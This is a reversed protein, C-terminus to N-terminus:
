FVISVGVIFVFLPFILDEFAIGEWPKHTLQNAIFKLPGSANFRDEGVINKIGEVIGDIGIIWFMDFGRLADLSVLRGPSPREALTPTQTLTTPGSVPSSDASFTLM